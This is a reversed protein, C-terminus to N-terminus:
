QSKKLTYQQQAQPDSILVGDDTIDVVKYNKGHVKIEENKTVSFSAREGAKALKNRLTAGLTKEIAIQDLVLVVESNDDMRRLTLRSVDRQRKANLSADFYEEFAEEFKEIKYPEKKRADGIQEGLRNFYTYDLARINVQFALSNDGSIAKGKFRLQFEKRDLSELILYAELSPFSEAEKPNTKYDYEEKNTFGDKDTDERGIGAVNPLGHKKLWEPDPIDVDEAARPVQDPPGLVM